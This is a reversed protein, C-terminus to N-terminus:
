GWGTSHPAARGPWSSLATRSSTRCLLARMGWRTQTTPGEPSGCVYMPPGPGVCWTRWGCGRPWWTSSAAHRTLAPTTGTDWSDMNVQLCVSMVYRPGPNEGPLQEQHKSPPLSCLLGWCLPFEYLSLLALPSLVAIM